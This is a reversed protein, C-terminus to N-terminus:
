RAEAIRESLPWQRDGDQLRLSRAQAPVEYALALAPGQADIATPLYRRGSGDLLVLQDFAPELIVGSGFLYSVKGVGASFDRDIHLVLFTHGPRAQREEVQAGAKAVPAGSATRQDSSVFTRHRATASRQVRRLPGFGTIVDAGTASTSAPLAPAARTSKSTSASPSAAPTRLSLRAGGGREIAEAGGPRARMLFLRLPSGKRFLGALQNDSALTMLDFAGGDFPVGGARLFALIGRALELDASGVESGPHRIESLSRLPHARATFLQVDDGLARLASQVSASAEIVAPAENAAAAAARSLVAPPLTVLIAAVIISRPVPRHTNM